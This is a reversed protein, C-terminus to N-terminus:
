VSSSSVPVIEFGDVIEREPLATGTMAVLTVRWGDAAITAAERRVRSDLTADNLVYM